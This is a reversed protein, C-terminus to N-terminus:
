SKICQSCCSCFKPIADMTYGTISIAQETSNGVGALIWQCGFYQHVFVSFSPLSSYLPCGNTSPTCHTQVQAQLHSVNSGYSVGYNLGLLPLLSAQLPQTPLSNTVHQIHSDKHYQSNCNVKFVIRRGDSQQM